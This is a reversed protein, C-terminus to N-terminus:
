KLPFGDWDHRSRHLGRHFNSPSVDRWDNTDFELRTVSGTVVKEIPDNIIYNICTSLSPEHGVLMASQHANDLYLIVKLITSFDPLYLRENVKFQDSRLGLGESFLKATEFARVAPSCILVDPIQGDEKMRDAMEVSNDIGRKKLPRELDNSDMQDWDSKGHRVLYLTKM